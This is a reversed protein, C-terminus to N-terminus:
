FSFLHLLIVHFFYIFFLGQESQIYGSTSLSNSVLSNKYNFRFKLYCLSQIFSFSLCSPDQSCNNLCETLSSKFGDVINNGIFESGVMLHFNIQKITPKILNFIKDKM